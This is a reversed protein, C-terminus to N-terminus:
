PGLGVRVRQGVRLPPRDPPAPDTVEVVVELVRTENAALLNDGASRKPLFTGGIRRVRGRYTIKPDTHDYVTVEKGILEPTVRHAFDAEVEGRVVRPGGPILWLAPTRTSVGLTSGPSITLQEITGATQALITCLEVASRAKAVEAEAQKVGAEAQRVLVRVSEEAAELATQEAKKLEVDRTALNWQSQAEFLKPEDKLRDEWTAEPYKEARYLLLLNNKILNYQRAALDAKTRALEVGQKLLEIKKGHQKLAEDAEAIKTRALEVATLARDLDRSPLTTDFRYLRDGAKVEQGDKVFVEAVTGSQLVPPLGYAIPPPDSDVTGLVILGGGKSKSNGPTAPGGGSPPGDPVSRHGATLSRVGVLTAVTLAIGLLILATRIRRLWNM